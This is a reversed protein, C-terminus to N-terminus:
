RAGGGVLKLSSAHKEGGDSVLSLESLNNSAVFSQIQVLMGIKSAEMAKKASLLGFSVGEM